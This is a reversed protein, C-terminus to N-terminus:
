LGGQGLETAWHSADERLPLLQEMADYNTLDLHLPTLSIMGQEVAAMDTGPHLHGQPEEGGIWYYKHGWPDHKEVVAGGYVRKGMRTVWVGQPVDPPVNINLLTDQPVGHHLIYSALRRAFTAAYRYDFMHRAHRNQLSVACAPVGMLTAEMAAAVTGSYTVDDGMNAGRNIGSVVLHPKEQLLGNIGLNVCDTPTGDVAFWDPQREQARLPSHLTLSHGAGSRERDPAVVMVRGLPLLAKALAQLGSAEIGDDNTVLIM